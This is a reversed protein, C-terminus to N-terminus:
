SRVIAALYAALQLGPLALSEAVIAMAASWLGPSTLSEAAIAMCYYNSTKYFQFWPSQYEPM